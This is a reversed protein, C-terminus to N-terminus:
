KTSRPAVERSRAGLTVEIGFGAFLDEYGLDTPDVQPLDGRNTENSIRTAEFLMAFSTGFDKRVRASLTLLWDGRNFYTQNSPDSTTYDRLRYRVDAGAHLGYGFRADLGVFGGFDRYSRDVPVGFELGSATFGLAALGGLTAKLRWLDRALSLETAHHTVDRNEFPRAYKRVVVEYRLESRWPKSWDHILRAGGRTQSYYAHEYQRVGAVEQLSYNKRFRRPIFGVDLVLRDSAGPSVSLSGGLDVYNAIENRAHFVYAAGVSIRTARLGQGGFYYHDDLSLRSALDGPGQMEYYRQGPLNRDFADERRRQERFLNSSYTSSARVTVGLRGRNSESQGTDSQSAESQSPESQEAESPTPESQEAESPKDTAAAAGLAPAAISICSGILLFSLWQRSM